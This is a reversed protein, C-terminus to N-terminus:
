LHMTYWGACKTGTCVLRYLMTAILDNKPSIWKKLVDHIEIFFEEPIGDGKLYENEYREARQSKKKAFHNVIEEIEEKTCGEPIHVYEAEM